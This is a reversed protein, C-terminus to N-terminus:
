PSKSEVLHFGKEIKYEGIGPPDKHRSKNVASGEM